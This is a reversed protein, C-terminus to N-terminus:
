QCSPEKKTNEFLHDIHKYMWREYELAKSRSVFVPGFMENQIFVTWGRGEVYEINSWRHIREPSGIAPRLIEIVKENYLMRIKEGKVKIVFTM